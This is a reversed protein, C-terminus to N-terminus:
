KVKGEFLGVGLRQSVYMGEGEGERKGNAMGILVKEAVAYVEVFMM